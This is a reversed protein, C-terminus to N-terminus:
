SFLDIQKPTEVEKKNYYEYHKNLYSIHEETLFTHDPYSFNLQRVIRTVTHTRKEYVIRNKTFFNKHDPSKEIKM